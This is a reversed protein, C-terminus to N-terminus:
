LAYRLLAGIGGLGDLLKGGDHSSNIIMVKGKSREVSKMVSELRQFGGEERLSSILGDSTLLLNVAGALAAKETEDMGYAAPEGKKIAALLDQVRKTEEAYREEELAKALEPRRVVEAIAQEDASSCSAPVLKAKLGTRSLEKMLDDKFFAPSAVVIRSPNHRKDYEELVKSIQSYFPVTKQEAYKKQVEGKLTSLVSYGFDRLLAFTAEERDHVVILVSARSRESAEKLRALQFNLWTEKKISLTAGQEVTLTHHSGHPVDEPGQEVVGSVRLATAVFETKEVRVSLFVRKKVAKSDRADEGGMKIKRLTSASVLDGPDVIQSLYWLDDADQVLVKVEGHKLDKYVIKM